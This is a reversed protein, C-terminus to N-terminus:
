NPTLMEIWTTLWRGTRSIVASSDNALFDYGGRHLTPDSYTGRARAVNRANLLAELSRRTGIWLLADSARSGFRPPVGFSDPATYVRALLPVASSDDSFGLLTLYRIKLETDQAKLFRAQLSDSSGALRGLVWAEGLGYNRTPVLALLDALVAADGRKGRSRELIVADLPAILDSPERGPPGKVGGSQLRRRLAAASDAYAASRLQALRTLALHGDNWQATGSLAARVRLWLPEPRTMRLIALASDAAPTGQRLAEHLESYLARHPNDIRILVQAAGPVPTALLLNAAVLAQVSVRNV